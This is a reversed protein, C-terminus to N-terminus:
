SGVTGSSNPDEKQSQRSTADGHEQMWLEWVCKKLETWRGPLWQRKREEGWLLLATGQAATFPAPLCAPAMCVEAISEM